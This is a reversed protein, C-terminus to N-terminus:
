AHSRPRAAVKDYSFGGLSFAGQSIGGIQSCTSSSRLSRASQPRGGLVAGGQNRASCPIAAISNEPASSPRTTNGNISSMRSAVSAKSSVKPRPTRAPPAFATSGVVSSSCVSSEALSMNDFDGSATSGGTQRGASAQLIGSFSSIDSAASGRLNRSARPHEPISSLRTSVEDTAAATSRSEANWMGFADSMACTRPPVLCSKVDNSSFSHDYVDNLRAVRDKMSTPDRDVMPMGRENMHKLESSPSMDGPMHVRPGRSPQVRVDNQKKYEDSPPLDAKTNYQRQAKQGCTHARLENIRVLEESPLRDTVLCTRTGAQLMDETGSLSNRRLLCHATGGAGAASASGACKMAKKPRAQVPANTHSIIDSDARRPEPKPVERTHFRCTWDSGKPRFSQIGAYSAANSFEYQSARSAVSVADSEYHEPAASRSRSCESQGQVSGRSRRCESQGQLSCVSSAREPAASQSRGYNSESAFPSSRSSVSGCEARGRCEASLVSGTVM